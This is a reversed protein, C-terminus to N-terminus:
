QEDIQVSLPASKISPFDDSKGNIKLEDLFVRNETNFSDPLRNKPYALNPYDNQNAYIFAIPVIYDGEYGLGLLPLKSLGSTIARIFGITREFSPSIVPYAANINKIKAIKDVTFTTYIRGYLSSRIANTPYQINREALRFFVPNENLNKQANGNFSVIIFIITSNFFKKM